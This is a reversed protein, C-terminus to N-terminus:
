LLTDSKGWIKKVYEMRSTMGLLVADALVLAAMCEVVVVARPVIVPDHRGKVSITIPEGNKNVTQQLAAISSTPKIAARFILPSGDSIGGLVGGAHNTAKTVTQDPGPIFSDNNSLGTSAAAAM